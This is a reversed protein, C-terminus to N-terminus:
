RRNFGGTLFAGAALALAGFTFEGFHHDILFLVAAFLLLAGSVTRPLLRLLALWLARKIRNM